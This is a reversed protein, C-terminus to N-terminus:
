LDRTHQVARRVDSDLLAEGFQDVRKRGPFPHRLTRASPTEAGLGKLYVAPYEGRDTAATQHDLKRPLTHSGKHGVTVACGEIGALAFRHLLPYYKLRSHGL